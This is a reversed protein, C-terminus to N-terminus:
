AKATRRIAASKKPHRGSVGTETSRSSAGPLREYIARVESYDVFDSSGVSALRRMVEAHIAQVGRSAVAPDRAVSRVLVAIDTTETRRPASRAVIKPKQLNFVVDFHAM